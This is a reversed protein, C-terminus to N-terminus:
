QTKPPFMIEAKTRGDVAPNGNVAGGEKVFSSVWMLFRAAEVRNGAGTEALMKRFEDAKPYATLVTGMSAFTADLKQGGIEADTKIENAATEQMTNWAQLMQQSAAQVSKAQLAVLGAARDKPSMEGKNLLDVFEKMLGEDAKFGDPLKIDALALPVVAAVPAAAKVPDAAKVPEPTKAPETIM